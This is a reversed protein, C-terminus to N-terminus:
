VYGCPLAVQCATHALHSLANAAYSVLILSGTLCNIYVHASYKLSKKNVCDWKVVYLLVRVREPSM